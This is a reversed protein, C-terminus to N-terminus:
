QGAEELRQKDSPTLQYKSELSKGEFSNSIMWSMVTGAPATVPTKAKGKLQPSNM